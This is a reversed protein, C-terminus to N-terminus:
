LTKIFRQIHLITNLLAMVVPVNIAIADATLLDQDQDGVSLNKKLNLNFKKVM